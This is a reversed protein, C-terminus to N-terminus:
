GTVRVAVRVEVSEGSVVLTVNDADLEVTTSREEGAGITLDPTASAADSAEGDGVVVREVTVPRDFRNEVTVRTGDNGAATAGVGLYAEDNGAVSVSVDRTGSVSTFGTSGVVLGAVALSALLLSALKLRSV